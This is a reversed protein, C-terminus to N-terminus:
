KITGNITIKGSWNPALPTTIIWHLLSGWSTVTQTTPMPSASVFNLTGPWYDVIDYSTITATWNNQYLLEFVVPDGANNGYQVLRKEFTITSSPTTSVTFSLPQAIGTQTVGNIVYSIWANNIYTGVCSPTNSIHWTIYLYITQGVALSGTYHWAYPSTTNTMNLPVNSTWQADPTVCTTTPWTDTITVNSIADPGNNTIALTFRADEWPYYSTKDSTKVISANGSPAYTYFLASAYVLPSNDSKIFANNLTQNAYEYWKFRGIVMLYWQQGPTLSFWSYEVFQNIGNIGIGFTFPAVGYIQSGVYELGAPLYDSLVVNNVTTPWLNAFDIKFTVLEGSLYLINTVLTKNLTVWVNAVNITATCTWGSGFNGLTNLTYTTTTTPSVPINTNSRNPYIFNLWTINPTMTALTANSYSANLIATQGPMINPTTTTLVCSSPINDLVHLVWTCVASETDNHVAMTFTYDGTQTPATVSSVGNYQNGNVRHPWAWVITPNVYIYTWYFIGNVVNWGVAVTQWPIAPNPGFTLTCALHPIPPTVTVTTSCSSDTVGTIWQVNLTYTTTSWPIDTTSGNWNPYTFTSLWSLTPTLTANAGSTYSATIAVTDGSTITSASATITCGAAGTVVVWSWLGTCDTTCHNPTGNLPGDDCIENPKISQTHWPLFVGGQTTIGGNGDTTGATKDITGDGCKAVYYSTCATKQTLNPNIIVKFNGNHLSNDSSWRYYYNLTAWNTNQIISRENNKTVIQWAVQNRPNTMAWWSFIWGTANVTFINAPSTDVTTSPVFNSIYPFKLGASFVNGGYIRVYTEAKDFVYSVPWKPQAIGLYVPSKDYFGLEQTIDCSDTYLTAEQQITRNESASAPVDSITNGAFSIAGMSVVMSLVIGVKTYM